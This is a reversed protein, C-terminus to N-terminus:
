LAKLREEILSRRTLLEQELEDLSARRRRLLELQREVLTHLQRLITRQQVPDDTAHFERRLASRADEREVLEKLEELSVGLAERLRLLEQLREVDAETYTRHRGKEHGTPSPLLGIEEYYRITRATTGTRAAVEGIRLTQETPQMKVHVYSLLPLDEELVVWSREQPRGACAYTPSM